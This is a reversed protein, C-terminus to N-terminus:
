ACQSQHPGLLLQEQRLDSARARSERRIGVDEVRRNKDGQMERSEAKVDDGSLSRRRIALKPLKKLRKDESPVMRNWKKM